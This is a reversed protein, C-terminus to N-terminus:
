FSLPCAVGTYINYHYCLRRFLTVLFLLVFVQVKLKVPTYQTGLSLTVLFLLVKQILQM